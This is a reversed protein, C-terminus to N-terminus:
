VKFIESRVELKCRWWWPAAATARRGPPPTLPPALAAFLPLEPCSSPLAVGGWRGWWRWRTQKEGSRDRGVATTTPADGGQGAGGESGGRAGAAKVRAAVVVDDM